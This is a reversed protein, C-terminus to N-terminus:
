ARAASWRGDAGPGPASDFFSINDALTGTLLHDDQM